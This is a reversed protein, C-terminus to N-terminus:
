RSKRGIAAYLNSRNAEGAPLPEEPRWQATPVVGPPVLEFGTLLRAVEARPRPYLREVTMATAAAARGIQEPMQDATLHSVAVYSGAALVERYAGVLRTPDDPGPVFHLVGVMLVAAPLRFDLLARVQPSGLVEAPERLDARVVTAGHNGALLQQARAVAVPEYDVYVVRSGPDRWQALEHVNGVMPVGCGLDLFQRIGANLLFLVARRLFARNLRASDRLPALDAFGMAVRRDSEFHHSGGLLFDYIRAARPTGPDIEGSV